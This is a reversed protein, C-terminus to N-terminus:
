IVISYLYVPIDEGVMLQLGDGGARRRAKLLSFRRPPGTGLTNKAIKRLLIAHCAGLVGKAGIFWMGGVM